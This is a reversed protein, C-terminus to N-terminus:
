LEIDKVILKYKVSENKAYKFTAEQVFGRYIIGSSVVEVLDGFDAPEKVDDTTFELIGCTMLPSTLDINGNMPQSDIVIGSNGTSSAFELHLAKSQM